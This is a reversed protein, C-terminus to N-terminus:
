SGEKGRIRRDANACSRALDAQRRRDADIWIERFRPATRTDFLDKGPVKMRGLGEALYPNDGCWRRLTRGSVQISAVQVYVDATDYTRPTATGNEEM